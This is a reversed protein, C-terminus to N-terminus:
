QLLIRRALDQGQETMMEAMIRQEIDDKPLSSAKCEEELRALVQADHVISAELELERGGASLAELISVVQDAVDEGAGVKELISRATTRRDQGATESHRPGSVPVHLLHAAMIIAGLDGGADKGLREAYRAASQAQQMVKPEQMLLRRVEMGVKDKIMDQQKEKVEDPLAGLCQEAFQCYAACGFDMEPNVFRQGCHPCKRATDDKFFEVTQSCQPCRAEYIADDKWFRSDQGPCKM